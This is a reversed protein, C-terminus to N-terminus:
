AEPAEGLTKAVVAALEEFTIPKRVLNTVGAEEIVAPDLEDIYGTLLVIPLDPRIRRLATALQLGNMGPMLYDSIVLDFEDPTSGFRELAQEGSAATAVAYGIRELRRKGVASLGAEDDVYLIREGSGGLAEAIRAPDETEESEM